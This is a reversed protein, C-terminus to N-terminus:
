QNIFKGVHLMKLLSFWFTLSECLECVFLFNTVEM